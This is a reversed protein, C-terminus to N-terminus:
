AFRQSDRLDAFTRLGHLTCCWWARVIVSETRGASDLKGHGFDGTAFQNMSFENFYTEQAMDLYKADGTARYLGLNLDCGTV